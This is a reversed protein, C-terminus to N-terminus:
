SVDDSGVGSNLMQKLFERESRVIEKRNQTIKEVLEVGMEGNLQLLEGGSTHFLGMHEMYPIHVLMQTIKLAFTPLYEMSQAYPFPIIGGLM